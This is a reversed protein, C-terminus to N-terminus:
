DTISSVCLSPISSVCRETDVTDIVDLQAPTADFDTIVVWEGDTKEFVWSFKRVLEQVRGDPTEIRAYLYGVDNVLQEGIVRRTILFAGTLDFQGAVLAGVFPEINQTLFDDRGEILSKGNPGVHIVTEGYRASIAKASPKPELLLHYIEDLQENDNAIAAGSSTLWAASLLIFMRRVLNYLTV